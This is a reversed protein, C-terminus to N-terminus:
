LPGEAMNIASVALAGPIEMTAYNTFNRKPDFLFGPSQIGRAPEISISTFGSEALNTHLEEQFEAIRKQSQPSEYTPFENKDLGPTIEQLILFGGPRLVRSMEEFLATTQNAANDGKPTRLMHLLFSTQALDMSDDPIGSELADGVIYYGHRARAPSSTLDLIVPKAAYVEESLAVFGAASVATLCGFLLARRTESSEPQPLIEALREYGAEYAPWDHLVNHHRLREERFITHLMCLTTVSEKEDTTLMSWENRDFNRHFELAREYQLSNLKRDTLHEYATEVAGVENPDSVGLVSEALSINEHSM